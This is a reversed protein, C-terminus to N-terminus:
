IIQVKVNSRRSLFAGDREVEAGFCEKWRAVAVAVLRRQNGSLPLRSLQVRRKTFIAATHPKVDVSRWRAGALPRHWHVTYLLTNRRPSVRTYVCPGNLGLGLLVSSRDCYSILIAISVRTDAERGRWSQCFRAFIFLRGIFRTAFRRGPSVGRIGDFRFMLANLM